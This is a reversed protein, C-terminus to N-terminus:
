RWAAPWSDPAHDPKRDADDHRERTFGPGYRMRGNRASYHVMLHRSWVGLGPCHRDNPRVFANYCRHRCGGDEGAGLRRCTRYRRATRRHPAGASGACLCCYLCNFQLLCWDAGTLLVAGRFGLSSPDATNHVPRAVSLAIYQWCAFMAYWQFFMAVALQRMVPPMEAIAIRIDRLATRASLPADSIRAVAAASLPLEPVRWVSWLITSLSLIAGTMFASHRARDTASMPAIRRWPSTTPPM